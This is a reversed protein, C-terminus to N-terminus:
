QAGKQNIVAPITRVLIYLDLWLSWYACIFVMFRGAITPTGHVGTVCIYTHHREAIWLDITDLAMDMNIASVEVGLINTRESTMGRSRAHLAEVISTNGGLDKLDDSTFSQNEELLRLLGSAISRHM